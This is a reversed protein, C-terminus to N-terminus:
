KEEAAPRPVSILPAPSAVHKSGAALGHLCKYTISGDPNVTAVLADEFSEDLIAMTTGNARTVVTVAAIDREGTKREQGPSAAADDVGKDPTQKPPKKGGSQQASPASIATMSLAVAAFLVLRPTRM